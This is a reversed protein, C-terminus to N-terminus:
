SALLGSIVMVDDIYFFCSRSMRVNPVDHTYQLMVSNVTVKLSLSCWPYHRM